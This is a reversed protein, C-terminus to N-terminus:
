GRHPRHRTKGGTMNRVTSHCLVTKQTSNARFARWNWNENEGCWFNDGTTVGNKDDAVALTLQDPLELGLQALTKSQAM